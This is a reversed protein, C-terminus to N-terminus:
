PSNTISRLSSDSLYEAQSVNLLSPWRVAHTRFKTMITELTSEYEKLLLSLQKNEHLLTQNDIIMQANNRELESEFIESLITLTDSSEVSSCVVKRFILM